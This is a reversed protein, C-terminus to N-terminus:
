FQEALKMGKQVSTLVSWDIDKFGDIKLEKLVPSSKPIGLLAERFSKVLALDTTSSCVWPKTANPFDAIARLGLNAYKKFSNVHVVGADFQKSLVANAVKDHRGVYAYRNLDKAHINNKVLEAQSLFRGITSERDGFAFRKDKLDSMSQIPSDTRVIFVGRIIESGNETEIALSQIRDNKKRAMIFSAPGLRACDFSGQVISRIGELYSPVIKLRLHVDHGRSQLDKEVHELIPMLQVYLESAKESTYVGFVLDKAETVLPLILVVFFLRLSRCFM